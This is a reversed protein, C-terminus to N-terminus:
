NSGVMSKGDYHIASIKEMITEKCELSSLCSPIEGSNWKQIKDEAAILVFDNVTAMCCPTSMDPMNYKEPNDYCGANFLFLKSDATCMWLQNSTPVLLACFIYDIEIERAPVVDQLLRPASWQLGTFIFLSHSKTCMVIAENDSCHGSPVLIMATIIHQSLWVGKQQKTVADIVRVGNHLGVWLHDNVILMCTVPSKM